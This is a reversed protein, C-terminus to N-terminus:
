RHTRARGVRTRSRRTCCSRWDRSRLTRTTVHSRAAIGLDRALIPDDVLKIMFQAMADVDHEDVLYGTEGHVVADLIGAHRTAVVPVASAGAEVISNPTGEADGSPAVISHQVLARSRQLEEAVDRHSLPGLFDVRDEVRLARALSRCADFLKGDGVLRSRCDVGSPNLLVRARPAGLRVIAEVISQSVAVFAHGHQFLFRYADRNQDLLAYV